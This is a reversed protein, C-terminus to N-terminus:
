VSESMVVLKGDNYKNYKFRGEEWEGASYKYKDEM